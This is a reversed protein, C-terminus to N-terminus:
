PVEYIEILGEGPRGDAASLQATYVGPALTLALAADASRAPLPFAGVSTFVPTLGPGWGDNDAIKETGSFVELRPAPLAGTVGLATLAPGIGRILVGKAGEGQVVFGAILRDAGTGVRQRASVNILRAPSAPQTDYAELLVIGAGPGDIHASHPGDIARVLAADRSGAALPFAAVSAFADQLPAPWDDNADIQRGATDYFSIRPNPHAGDLFAALGPGIARVLLPKAGDRSAFGVLLTQGAALATRVSLNVLRSRPNGTPAVFPAREFAGRDPLAGATRLNGIRDLRPSYAVAPASDVAPSNDKLRFDAVAPDRSANVFRPDTVLDGPGLTPALNGGFYINGSFLVSNNPGALRNVPEPREGAATNAVPAVLINNVIRVDQSGYAWIQSYELNVSASNLYATNHVIDVHDAEVTHIGSGGNDYSLNNQVLTRGLFRGGPRASTDKNVDIIIGNGDSHRNVAAWKEFTENRHCTNNRILLKYNGATADFNSAGLLSIGSTGYITTWCNYRSLNNEITIWDAELAGLGQGPCYEVLNDAMRIHHPLNTMYRGDVAIGNSNTRSDARGIADPFRDRVTDAEGRVHLGRVELYALVLSSPTTNTGAAINVINWGNSTLRPQHGPFNKLSIWGAPTGARRFSAVPNLGGQYTGDLLLIIDGPQALDLARQPTRLATALARGDSTDNGAPSVYFAPGAFHLNDVRVEHGTTAPWSDGGVDSAIEFSFQIRPALPQFAGAGFPTMTGLELAYRQHFDAAAPHVLTALGGTRTGPPDFSEVRVIVPRALSVSLSFALTLRALDPETNVVALPGSSVGARWPATAATSDVTLRLGPTPTSGGLTDITGVPAIAASAVITGTSTARYAALGPWPNTANFDTQHLTAARLAGTAVCALVCAHLLSSTMAPRAGSLARPSSM